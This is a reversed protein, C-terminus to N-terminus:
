GRTHEEPESGGSPDREVALVNQMIFLHCSCLQRATLLLLACPCISSARKDAQALLGTTPWRRWHGLVAIRM